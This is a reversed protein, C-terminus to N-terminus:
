TIAAIMFASILALALALQFMAAGIIGLITMVAVRFAKYHRQGEILAGTFGGIFAGILLGIPGFVFVGLAGGVVAGGVAWWSGGGVKAGMASGIYDALVALLTIIGFITITIPSITHFDTILAYVLTGVFVLSIGPIGPIITGILGILFIFITITWLLIFNM